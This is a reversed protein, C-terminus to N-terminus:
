QDVARTSRPRRMRSSETDYVSVVNSAFGRSSHDAGRLSLYWVVCVVSVLFESGQQRRSEFGLDFCAM